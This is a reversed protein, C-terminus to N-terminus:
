LIEIFFPQGFVLQAQLLKQHVSLNEEWVIGLAFCRSAAAPCNFFLHAATEEESNHCMVCNYGEDLVKKRRRLINRTNLRDNLLLWTFVQDEPYVQNEM